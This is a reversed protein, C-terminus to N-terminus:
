RGLCGVVVHDICHDLVHVLLLPLMEGCCATVVLAADMGPAAWKRLCLDSLFIAFSILILAICSVFLLQGVQENRDM